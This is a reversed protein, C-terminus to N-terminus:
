DKKPAYVEWEGMGMRNGYESRTIFLRMRKTTVPDFTHESWGHVSNDKVPMGPLDQWNGDKDYQVTYDLSRYHGDIQHFLRVRDVTVPEPWEVIALAEKPSNRETHWIGDDPEAVGDVLRTATGSSVTLRAKEGPAILNGPVVRRVFSYRGGPEITKKFEAVAADVEAPSIAPNHLIRAAVGMNVAYRDLPRYCRYMMCVPRLANLRQAIPVLSQSSLIRKAYWGAIGGSRIYWGINERDARLRRAIEDPPATRESWVVTIRPDIRRNLELVRQCNVFPRKGFRQMAFECNLWLKPYAETLVDAACKLHELPWGIPKNHHETEDTSQFRKECEECHCTLYDVDATEFNFGDIGTSAARLLCEKLLKLAEPKSPCFVSTRTYKAKDTDALKPSIKAALEAHESVIYKGVEYGNLGLGHVVKVNRAHAYAVVERCRKGDGKWGQLGWIVVGDMKQEAAFDILEQWRGELNRWWIWFYLEPRSTEAKEAAFLTTCMLIVLASTTIKTKM